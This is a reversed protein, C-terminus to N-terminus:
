SYFLKYVVSVELLSPLIHLNCNLVRNKTTQLATDVACCSKIPLSDSITIVAVVLFINKAKTSNQLRPIFHSNLVVQESSCNMKNTEM